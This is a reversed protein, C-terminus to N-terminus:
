TLFNFDAILVMCLINCSNSAYDFRFIASQSIACSVSFLFHLVYILCSARELIYWEENQLLRFLSFFTRKACQLVVRAFVNRRRRRASPSRGDNSEN